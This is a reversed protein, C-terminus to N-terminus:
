GDHCGQQARRGRGGDQGVGELQREHGQSPSARRSTGMFITPRTVPGVGLLTCQCALARLRPGERVPRLRRTGDLVAGEAKVKLISVAGLGM